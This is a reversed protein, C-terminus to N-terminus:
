KKIASSSSTPASSSSVAPKQSVTPTITPTPASATASTDFSTNIQERTRIAALVDENFTPEIPASQSNLDDSLTSTVTAHYINGIIWTIVLVVFSVLLIVVNNKKM